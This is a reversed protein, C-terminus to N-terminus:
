SGVVFGRWGEVCSVSCFALSRALLSASMSCALAVVAAATAGGGCVASVLIKPVVVGESSLRPSNAGEVSLLDAEADIDAM